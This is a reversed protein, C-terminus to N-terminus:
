AEESETEDDVVDAAAVVEEAPVEETVAAEPAADAVVEADVAAPKEAKPKVTNAAFEDVSPLTAESFVIYENCLVDYANLESIAVLQVSTLNRFSLAAAAEDRGVVVLM